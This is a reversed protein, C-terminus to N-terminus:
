AAGNADRTVGILVIAALHPFAEFSVRYVRPSCAIRVASLTSPSVTARGSISLPQGAPVVPRLFAAM